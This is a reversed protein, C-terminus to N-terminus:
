SSTAPPMQGFLKYMLPATYSNGDVKINKFYGKKRAYFWGAVATILSFLVLRRRRKVTKVRQAEKRKEAYNVHVVDDSILHDQLPICLEESDGVTVEHVQDLFKYRM